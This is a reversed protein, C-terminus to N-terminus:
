KKKKLIRRLWFIKKNKKFQINKINAGFYHTPNQTDKSDIRVFKQTNDLIDTITLGDVLLMKSLNSTYISNPMESNDSAKSGSSTSYALKINKPDNIIPRKLGINGENRCADMIVLCNNRSYDLHLILNSINFLKAKELRGKDEFDIPLIYSNGNEDQIAHGAYYIISFDYKNQKEKFEEILDLFQETNLNEKIIVKFELKEFSSAILKADNTPNKLSLSDNDYSTNAIVLAIKSKPTENLLHACKEPFWHCIDQGVLITPFSIIFILFLKKMKIKIVLILKM